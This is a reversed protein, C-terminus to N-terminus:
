TTHGEGIRDPAGAEDNVYVADLGALAAFNEQDLSTKGRKGHYFQLHGPAAERIGLAMALMNRASDTDSAPNQDGGHGWIINPFDKYRNAAYRGFARCQAAGNAAIERNWGGKANPGAAWAPFLLVLLGKERTQSLVWDAHAFYAEDPTSFDGPTTFPAIGAHNRPAHDSYFYEVLNVIIANFGQQRVRELYQGADQKSLQAILSWPSDGHIFFPANKQDVLYRGNASVKLPFAAHDAARAHGTPSVLALGALLSFLTLRTKM